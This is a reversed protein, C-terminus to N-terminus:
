KLTELRRCIFRKTRQGGAAARVKEGEVKQCMEQEAVHRPWMYCGVNDVYFKTMPGIDCTTM